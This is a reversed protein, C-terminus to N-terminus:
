NSTDNRSMTPRVTAGSKGKPLKIFHQSINLESKTEGFTLNIFYTIEILENKKDQHFSAALKSCNSSTPQPQALKRRRENELEKWDEGNKL